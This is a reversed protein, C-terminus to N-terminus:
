GHRQRAEVHPVGALVPAELSQHHPAGQTPVHPQGTVFGHGFAWVVAQSRSTVEIKRYAGRIYTKITNISLYLEAAIEHNSLGHCILTVVRAERPTLGSLQWGRAAVSSDPTALPLQQMPGGRCASRLADHLDQAGLAKSVIGAAGAARALIMAAPDPHWDFVMILRHGSATLDAIDSVITAPNAGDLLVLDVEGPPCATPVIVVRGPHEGILALVGAAILETNLILRVRIPQQSTAAVARAHPELFLRPSRDPRPNRVDCPSDLADANSM